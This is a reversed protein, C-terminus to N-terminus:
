LVQAWQSKLILGTPVRYQPSMPKKNSKYRSIPWNRISISTVDNYSIKKWYWLSTTAIDYCLTFSWTITIGIKLKTNIYSLSSFALLLPLCKLLLRGSTNQLFRTRLFKAFNVPFYKHWLRNKKLSLCLHKGTFKAFNRFVIISQLVM